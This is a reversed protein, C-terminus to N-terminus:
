EHAGGREGAASQEPPTEGRRQAAEAHTGGERRQAEPLREFACLLEEAASNLADAVDADYTGVCRAHYVALMAANCLATAWADIVRCNHTVM